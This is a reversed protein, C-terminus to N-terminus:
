GSSGSGLGRYWSKTLLGCEAIMEHDCPYKLKLKTTYQMDAGHVHGCKWRGRRSM